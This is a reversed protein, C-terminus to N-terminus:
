LGTIGFNASGDGVVCIVPRSPEALQVGVAAPIGFGLAGAAPFYYSGARDLGVRQWFSTVNSTSENAVV